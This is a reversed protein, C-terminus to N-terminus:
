GETAALICTRFTQQISGRSTSSALSTRCAPHSRDCALDFAFDGIRPLTAAKFFSCPGFVATWESNTPVFVFQTIVNQPKILGPLEHRHASVEEVYVNCAVKSRRTYVSDYGAAWKSFESVATEVPFRMLQVAHSIPAISEEFYYRSM